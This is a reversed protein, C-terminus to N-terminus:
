SRFHKKKDCVSRSAVAAYGQGAGIEVIVRNLQNFGDRERASGEGSLENRLDCRKEVLVTEALVIDAGQALIARYLAVRRRLIEGHEDM